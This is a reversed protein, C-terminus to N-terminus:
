RAMRKRGYYVSARATVKRVREARRQSYLRVVKADVKGEASTPAHAWPGVILRQGARIQPDTAEARLGTYNKISGKLFLDHWGGAHLGVVKMDRYHDSISWRQWYSDSREHEIWDRFYPALSGPTPLTVLPYNEVPLTTVWDRPKLSTEARRRLTDTTLISTWSSTFWQMLVGSQYTWGEYYESATVYPFIAILHPPNAVAALMQTAGVYSGGFMGVKGNSHTLSAAWEVSDFGDLSENRFPYFEGGSGYRGRTDQLVVVYGHRALEFAMPAEGKRDYPTRELLVPFKDDTKPRYIDANLIVGDRMRASINNEVVVEYPVQAVVSRPTTWWGVVLVILALRALNRPNNPVIIPGKQM